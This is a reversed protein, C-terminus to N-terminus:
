DEDDWIPEDDEILWADLHHQQIISWAPATTRGKYTVQFGDIEPLAIPTDMDSDNNYCNIAEICPTVMEAPVPPYHNGQLHMIIADEIGLGSSALDEAFIRGM